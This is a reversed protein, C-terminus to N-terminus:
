AEFDTVSENVRVAARTESNAVPYMLTGFVWYHQTSSPKVLKLQVVSSNSQATAYVEAGVKGNNGTAATTLDLWWTGGNWVTCHGPANSNVVGTAGGNETEYDTQLVGPISGVVVPRGVKAQATSTGTTAIPLSMKNHPGNPAFIENMSM